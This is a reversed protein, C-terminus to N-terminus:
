VQPAWGPEYDRQWLTMADEDDVIKGNEPNIKLMRQKRYAINGLHCLLTSRHGIEIEANLEQHKGSRIADIFNQIHPDHTLKDKHEDILKDNIDFIKYGGAADMEMAGNTGYFSIFATPGDKHKNCSLGQWTVQKGEAFEFTVNNTDPTEWDDDHAYRGGSSVVSVPFEVGLGWRSVDLTHVGNNGLEGNGYTWFWHWNYPLRNDVYPQRPAPGQWLEYNLTSPVPAEKGHGIPPRLNNYWSRSLYVNGIVGAHLKQVAEIYGPISRRQSGMQVARDYKRAAAVMTEGEWPNHSCPKEVYVHKGAACALITAPAHWHNPAACILADVEPDDLIQHFDMIAQPRQQTERDFYDKAKGARTEDVDCVYKLEVGPRSAFSQALAMGRQLGMVGVTVKRSPLADRQAFAPAASLFTAAAASTGLFNRRSVLDSM